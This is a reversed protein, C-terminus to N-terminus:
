VLASGTTVIIEIFLLHLVHLLAEPSPAHHEVGEDSPGYALRAKLSVRVERNENSLIVRLSLLSALRSLAVEGIQGLSSRSVPRVRLLGLGQGLLEIRVLM